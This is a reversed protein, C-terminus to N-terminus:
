VVDRRVLRRQRDATTQLHQTAVHMIRMADLCFSLSETQQRIRRLELPHLPIPVGGISELPEGAM